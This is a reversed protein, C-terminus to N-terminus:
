SRNRCSYVQLPPPPSASQPARVLPSSSVTLPDCVIPVNFTSPFNNPNSPTLPSSQSKVYHSFEDFTVNASVFYRNLFPYFCKYGKQPRPSGLFVCKHSRSSLKDLGPSFNHVFCTSGFVRLPLPHLPEHSFLISHPINNKLVSSPMRTILYYATLIVDGWFHEHVEGHVLLNRTTEILHRNEREAVGNQQPTYACSTQHLIGHSAMLQKFSHSLYERDNDNHLELLFVSSLKLKM